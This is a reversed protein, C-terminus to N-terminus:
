LVIHSGSITIPVFLFPSHSLAPALIDMELCWKGYIYMSHTHFIMSKVWSLSSLVDITADTCGEM